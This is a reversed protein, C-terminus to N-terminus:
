VSPDRRLERIDVNRKAVIKGGPSVIFTSEFFKKAFRISEDLSSFMEIVKAYKGDPVCVCWALGHLIPAYYIGNSIVKDQDRRIGRINVMDTISRKIRGGLAIKTREIEVGREWNRSEVRAAIEAKIANIENTHLNFNGGSRRRYAGLLKNYETIQVRVVWRPSKVKPYKSFVTKLISVVDVAKTDYVVFNGTSGCVNKSNEKLTIQIRTKVAEKEIAHPEESIYGSGGYEILSAIKKNEM